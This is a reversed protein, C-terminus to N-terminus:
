GNTSTYTGIHLSMWRAKSIDQYDVCMKFPNKKGGIMNFMGQPLIEGAKSGSLFDPFSDTTFMWKQAPLPSLPQLWGGKGGTQLTRVTGIYPSKQHDM